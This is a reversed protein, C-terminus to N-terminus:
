PERNSEVANYRLIGNSTNLCFPSDLGRYLNKSFGRKQWARHTGIGSAGYARFGETERFLGFGSSWFWM